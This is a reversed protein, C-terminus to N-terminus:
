TLGSGSSRGSVIRAASGSITRPSAAPASVRSWASVTALTSPSRRTTAATNPAADVHAVQKVLDQGGVAASLREGRGAGPHSEDTSCKMSCVSCFESSSLSVSLRHFRSRARLRCPIAGAPPRATAPEFGTEGVRFRLNLDTKCLGFEQLAASEGGCAGCRRRRLRVRGKASADSRSLPLPPERGAVRRRLLQDRVFSSPGPSLRSREATRAADV